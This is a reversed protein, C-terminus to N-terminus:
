TPPETVCATVNLLVTSEKNSYGVNARIECRYLGSDEPRLDPLILSYDESMDVPRSYEYAQPKNSNYGRRIISKSM